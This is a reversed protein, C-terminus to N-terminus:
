FFVDIVTYYKTNPPINSLSTNPDPGILDEAIVAANVARLDDALRSKDSNPKCVPFIPTNCPNSTEILVGAEVLGRITPKIGDTVAQSLPYQRQRPLIAAFKLQIQAEGASKIKVIDTQYKSWFEEPIAKM